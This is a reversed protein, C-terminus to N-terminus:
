GRRGKVVEVYKKLVANISTQYGKGTKRFFALVDPDLRLTIQKKPGPWLIAKAFFDPGLEPMESFDIDSDRLADIRKWDTRSRRKTNNGERRSAKRLSIIRVTEPGPETFVVYATRGRFSGMGIWRREGYDDRTDPQVLLLGRFMEEADVFDFGHKRMNARNKAEGWEM